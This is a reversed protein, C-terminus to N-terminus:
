LDNEKNDDSLENDEFEYDLKEYNKLEELNFLDYKVTNVVHNFIFQLNKIKENNNKHSLKKRWEMEKVFLIFNEERIAVYFASLKQKLDSWVSKIHLPNKEMDLIIIGMFKSSRNYGSIDSNM